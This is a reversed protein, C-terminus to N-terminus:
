IGALDSRSDDHVFARVGLARVGVDGAQREFARDLLEFGDDLPELVALYRQLFRNRDVLTTFRELTTALLKQAEGFRADLVDRKIGRSLRGPGLREVHSLLSIAILKKGPFSGAGPSGAAASAISRM